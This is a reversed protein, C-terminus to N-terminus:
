SDMLISLARLLEPSTSSSQHRAQNVIRKRISPNDKLYTLLRGVLDRVSDTQKVELPIELENILLRWESKSYSALGTLVALAAPREDAKPIEQQRRSALFNDISLSNLEVNPGSKLLRSLTLLADALEHTKM